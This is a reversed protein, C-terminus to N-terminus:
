KESRVFDLIAGTLRDDVTNIAYLESMHSHQALLHAPACGAPRKCTADKLMDFQQVFSPPDLEAAALMLPTTTALLAKFSLQEDYRSADGGFYVVQPKNIPTAKLDYTGSVLITGVMGGGKVKFFEPHSVYSAVHTAGASHGMLFIRATDGGRAAINQSVWLMASAVDEAALPWRAEPALRYNINVGVFGNRVAWLMLNDYFPTGANHKDGGLFAGGHVFVLVPRPPSVPGSAADPMFVDLGQRDADGYKADREIRVGRYPENEQLPAYIPATRAPDVVRGIERIQAAREAPIPGTQAQVAASMAVMAALAMSVSKLSTM